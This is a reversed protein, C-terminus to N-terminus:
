QFLTESKNQAFTAMFRRALADFQSRVNEASALQMGARLNVAPWSTADRIFM